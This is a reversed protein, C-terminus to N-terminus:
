NTKPVLLVSVVTALREPVPEAKILALASPVRERLESEVEEKSAIAAM